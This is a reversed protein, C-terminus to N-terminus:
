PLRRVRIERFYWVGTDDHAQLAILGGEPLLRRGERPPPRKVNDPEIYDVVQKGNLFVQIRKNVVVLRVTFWQREDIPSKDLDVIEYLSGTKRGEKEASNLQVEYGNALHKFADRVTMDTHFFIGGNSNPEARAVAELEFNAFRAPRSSDDGVFFLHARFTQTSQVRLIGSEVRFSEPDNNAKWGTLDRGNFLARWEQAGADAAGFLVAVLLLVHRM